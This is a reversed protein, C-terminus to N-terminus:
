IRGYDALMKLARLTVVGIWEPGTAPTWILWNPRWAGDDGQLSELEDLAADLEQDTFWSRAHSEPRKAFDYPRHIEDAAYGEPQHGVLNQRKVIAGVRAAEEAGDPVADLFTVAAEAEYPHTKEIAKVRTWCFATARQVWPHEVHIVRSLVEATAILSGGPEIGWWPARPYPELSPLALPIGGDDATITELYDCIGPDVADLEHQVELAAWV